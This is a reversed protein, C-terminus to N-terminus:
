SRWLKFPTSLANQVTGLAQQSVGSLGLKNQQQQDFIQQELDSEADSKGHSDTGM